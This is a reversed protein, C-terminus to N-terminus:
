HEKILLRGAANIIFGSSFGAAFEVVLIVDEADNVKRAAKSEISYLRTNPEVFGTADAFLFSSMFWKHMFWLDSAADTTPTPVGTVGIASAQDSVVAMGVAGTQVESAISQDSQIDFELYTRIITFPRKAKEATTLSLLITGGGATVATSSPPLDFWSTARRAGTRM